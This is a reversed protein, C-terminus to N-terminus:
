KMALLRRRRGHPDARDQVAATATPPPPPPPMPTLPLDVRGCGPCWWHEAVRGQPSPPKWGAHTGETGAELAASFPASCCIFLVVVVMPALTRAPSSSSRRVM